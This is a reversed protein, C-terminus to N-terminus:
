CYINSIKEKNDYRSVSIGICNMKKKIKQIDRVKVPCKIYKFDLLRAFVKYFRRIRKPNHDTPHSYILLCWKFCENNATNKIKILCKKPPRNKQFNSIM